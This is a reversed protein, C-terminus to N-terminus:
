EFVSMKEPHNVTGEWKSATTTGHRVNCWIGLICVHALYFWVPAFMIALIGTINIEMTQVDGSRTARGFNQLVFICFVNEFAALIKWPLSTLVHIRQDEWVLDHQQHDIIGWPIWVLFTVGSLLIMSQGSMVSHSVDFNQRIVESANYGMQVTSCNYYQSQLEFICYGLGGFYVVAQPEAQQTSNNYITGTFLGWNNVVPATALLPGFFLGSGTILSVVAIVGLIASNSLRVRPEQVEPSNKKESM